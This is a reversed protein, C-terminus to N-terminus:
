EWIGREGHNRVEMEEGGEAVVWEEGGETDVCLLPRSVESDWAGEVHEGVVTVAQKLSSLM